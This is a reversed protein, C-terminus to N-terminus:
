PRDYWTKASRTRTLALMVITFAVLLIAQWAAFITLLSDGIIIFWLALHARRSHMRTWVLAACHAGGLVIALTLVTWQNADGTTFAQVTMSVWFLIGVVAFLGICIISLPTKTRLTKVIQAYPKDSTDV